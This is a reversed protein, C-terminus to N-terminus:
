INHPANHKILVLGFEQDSSIQLANGELLDGEVVSQGNATAHGQTIFAIFPGDSQITQNKSILGVQCTMNSDFRNKASGGLVTTFEGAQLDFDQYAPTLNKQPPLFWLQLIDARSESLSFEAHEMGTGARQVQVGPGKITTGDGLSGKHGVEGSLIISVIDVDNHPHLPAGDNPKFYGSALYIFDGLGHSIDNRNAAEQWINPSMAMRTEVIGDFGGTPLQDRHIIRLPQENM